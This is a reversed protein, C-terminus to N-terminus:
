FGKSDAQHSTNRQPVEVHIGTGWYAGCIGGDNDCYGSVDGVCIQVRYHIEEVNVASDRSKAIGRNRVSHEEKESIFSTPDEAFEYLHGEQSTLIKEAV